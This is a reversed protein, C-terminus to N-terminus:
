ETESELFTSAPVSFVEALKAALEPSIRRGENAVRWLHSQSFGTKSALWAFDREHEELLAKLAEAGTRPQTTLSRTSTTM